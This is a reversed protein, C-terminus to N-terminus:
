RSTWVAVVACVESVTKYDPSMTAGVNSRWQIPAFAVDPYAEVALVDRVPVEHDLAELGGPLFAGNLYM